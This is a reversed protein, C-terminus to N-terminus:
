KTASLCNKCTVYEKHYSYLSGDTATHVFFKRIGKSSVKNAGSSFTTVKGDCSRRLDRPLGDKDKITIALHILEKM